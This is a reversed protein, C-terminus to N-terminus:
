DNPVFSKVQIFRLDIGPVAAGPVELELLLRGCEHVIILEIALLVLSRLPVHAPAPGHTAPAIFRVRLQDVSYIDALTLVRSM